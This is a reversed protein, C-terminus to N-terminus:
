RARVHFFKQAPPAAESAGDDGLRLGLNEFIRECDPDDVEAMCGPATGEVNVAVDVGDFLAALDAVVVDGAPDFAAFEVTARNPFLCGSVREDPGSECGTSGLHVRYAQEGNSMGDLRLFKYGGNWSWFMSTLNLPTSAVAANQHNLEFPVGLVFRLGRYEGEPVRGVVRANTATTGNACPGSADEFDLLVVDEHQWMGDQELRVAHGEGSADVLEVGHVYLRFDAPEYRSAGQGLGEYSGGCAFVEESVRAEFLIEVETMPPEAEGGSGCGAGLLVVAAGVCLHSKM